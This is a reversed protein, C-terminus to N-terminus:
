RCNWWARLTKKWKGKVLEHGNVFIRDGIIAQSIRNSPGPVEYEDGDIIIKNNGQFVVM